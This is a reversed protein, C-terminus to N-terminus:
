SPSPIGGASRTPLADLGTTLFVYANMPEHEWWRQPDAVVAVEFHLHPSGGHANGTAGVYGLVDGQRVTRGRRIGAAYRDLHAYYLLYTGSRDLVHLGRGGAGGESMAVVRGDLAAIVPTGRPALIDIGRHRRTGERPDGFTDRLEHAGVLVLPQVFHVTAQVSPASPAASPMEPHDPDAGAVCSAQLLACVLALFSAPVPGSSGIARGAGLPLTAGNTLTERM